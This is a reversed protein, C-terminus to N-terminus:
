PGKSGSLAFFRRSVSPEEAALYFNRNTSCLRATDLGKGSKPCASKLNKLCKLGIEPLRRVVTMTYFAYAKNCHLM